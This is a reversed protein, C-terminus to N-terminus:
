NSYPAYHKCGSDHRHNGDRRIANYDALCSWCFEYRCKGCTMHDCGSAKEIRASCKPCKKCNQSIWSQSARQESNCVADYEACTMDTHWVSKHTFCTQQRCKACRVINNEDGGDNLQGMGCGHACWIFEPMMELQRHLIFREYKELLAKDNKDSLIRQITKASFNIRCNLEPCRASDTCMKGFEQKVHQYLCSDCIRREVHSCRHSYIKKFEEQSKEDFCVQCQKTSESSANQNDVAFLSPNKTLCSLCYRKKNIVAFNDSTIKSECYGCQM